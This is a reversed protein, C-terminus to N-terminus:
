SSQDLLAVAEIHYTQPFMDVPQVLRLNYGGECLRRCDRALTTPNCSIYLIRDPQMRILRRLAKKVVIGERPPDLIVGGWNERALQPILEQFLGKIFTVNRVGNLQANRKADEIATRVVEVGMVEDAAKSAMLTLVGVGCYADLIRDGNIDMMEIAKSFLVEAQQQNVQFFSTPQVQFTLEGVMYSLFPDGHYTSYDCPADRRLVRHHMGKVLPFEKIGNVIMDLRQRFKTSTNVLVQTGKSSSRIEVTCFGQFPHIHSKFEDRLRRYVSNIQDHLIPCNELEVPERTGPRYFGLSVRDGVTGLGFRAKHRYHWPLEMGIIPLMTVKEFGGIRNLQEALIQEKFRLQTLYDIHQWHCGGCQGFLPCKPSIRSDSPDLVRSVRGVVYDAKEELVEAEVEEGAIGDEVFVAKGKHHGLATGGYIMKELTLHVNM